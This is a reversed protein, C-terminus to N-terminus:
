SQRLALILEVKGPQEDLQQAIDLPSYGRDALDYVAQATPDSGSPAPAAEPPPQVTTRAPPTAGEELRQLEAIKLEAEDLLKELRVAKNDLQASVRRAMEEIEVMLQELQGQMGRLKRNREIQETATLRGADAARQRRIGIFLSAIVLLLGVGLVAMAWPSEAPDIQALM